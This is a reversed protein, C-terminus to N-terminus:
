HKKKFTFRYAYRASTREVSNLGQLWSYVYRLAFQFVCNSSFFNKRKIRCVFFFWRNGGGGVGRRVTTICTSLAVGGHQPSNNDYYRTVSCDTKYFYKRVGTDRMGRSVTGHCVACYGFLIVRRARCRTQTATRAYVAFECETRVSNLHWQSTTAPGRACRHYSRAVWSSTTTVDAAAICTDRHRWRRRIIELFFFHGRGNGGWRVAEARQTGIRKYTKINDGGGGYIYVGHPISDKVREFRRCRRILFVISQNKM